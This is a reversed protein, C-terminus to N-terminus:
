ISLAQNRETIKNFCTLLKISRFKLLLEDSGLQNALATLIGPM